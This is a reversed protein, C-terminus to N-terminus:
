RVVTGPKAGSPAEVIIVSDGDDTALIMGESLEGRLKAPKLNAVVIVNMGPLDEPHYFPAVGSVISRPKPEGLDVQSVLLKDSGEVKRSELIRGTRFELQQFSEIGVLGSETSSEVKTPEAITQVTSNQKPPDKEKQQIRPFLPEPRPLPTGSQVLGPNPKELTLPREGLGLQIRASKMKEPM